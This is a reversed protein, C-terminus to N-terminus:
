GGADVSGCVVGVLGDDKGGFVVVDEEVLEAVCDMTSEFGLGAMPRLRLGLRNRLQHCGREVPEVSAGRVAEAPAVDGAVGLGVVGLVDPSEAQSDQFPRLPDQLQDM